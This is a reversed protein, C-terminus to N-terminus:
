WTCVSTNPEILFTNPSLVRRFPIPFDEWAYLYNLSLDMGRLVWTVRAGIKADSLRGNAPEKVRSVQVAPFSPFPPQLPLAPTPIHRFQFESGQDAPRNAEFDPLVLGECTWDGLTYDLRAGWLPIRADVFDDLIFERFDQPNVVDLIRLGIAEGWVIQQRGLRADFHGRRLELYLERLEGEFTDGIEWRNVPSTNFDHINTELHNVPDVLARAITTLKGM